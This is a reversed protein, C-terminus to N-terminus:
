SISYNWNVEDPKKVIKRLVRDVETTINELTKFQDVDVKVYNGNKRMIQELGWIEKGWLRYQARVSKPLDRPMQFIHSGCRDCYGKKQTPREELHYCAGCCPCKRRKNIWEIVHNENTTLLIVANSWELLFEDLIESSVVCFSEENLMLKEDDSLKVPPASVYVDNLERMKAWDSPDRSLHQSTNGSMLDGCDIYTSKIKDAFYDHSEEENEELTIFDLNHYTAIREGLEMIPCFPSGIVVIRCSDM